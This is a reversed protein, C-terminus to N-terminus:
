CIIKLLKNEFNMIGGHSITRIPIWIPAFKLIRIWNYYIQIREVAKLGLKGLEREFQWLSEVIKQTM